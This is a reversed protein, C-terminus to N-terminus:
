LFLFIFLLVPGLFVFNYMWVEKILATKSFGLNYYMYYENKRFYNFGLYGILMGFTLFIFIGSMVSFFIGSIVSFVLNFFNFDRYYKWFAKRNM